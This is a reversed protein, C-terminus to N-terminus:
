KSQRTSSDTCVTSSWAAAAAAAATTTARYSDFPMTEALLQDYPRTNSEKVLCFIVRESLSRWRESRSTTWKRKNEKGDYSNLTGVNSSEDMGGLLPRHYQQQRGANTISTTTSTLVNNNTATGLGSGNSNLISAYFVPSSPTQTAGTAQAQQSNMVSSTLPNNVPPSPSPPPPPSSSSAVNGTPLLSPPPALAPHYLSPEQAASFWFCTKCKEKRLCPFILIDKRLMSTLITTHFCIFILFFQQRNAEALRALSLIRAAGKGESIVLIRGRSGCIIFTDSYVFSIKERERRSRLVSTGRCNKKLMKGNPATSIIVEKKMTSIITSLSWGSPCSQRLVWNWHMPRQPSRCLKAIVEVRPQPQPRQVLTPLWLMVVATRRAFPVHPKRHSGTSLAVLLHICLLPFPTLVQRLHTRRLQNRQHDTKFRNNNLWANPAKWNILAISLPCLRARERDVRTRIRSVPQHIKKVWRSAAPSDVPPHWRSRQPQSRHWRHEDSANHSNLRRHQRPSWQKGRTRTPIIIITITLHAPPSLRENNPSQNDNPFRSIKRPPTPQQRLLSLHPQLSPLPPTREDRPEISVKRHVEVHRSPHSIRHWVPPEDRDEMRRNGGNMWFMQKPRRRELIWRRVQDARNLRWWPKRWTALFQCVAIEM